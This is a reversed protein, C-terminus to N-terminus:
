PRNSSAESTRCILKRVDDITTPAGLFEVPNAVVSSHIAPGLTNVLTDAVYCVPHSVTGLNTMHFAVPRATCRAKAAGAFGVYTEDILRERKSAAALRPPFTIQMVPGDLGTDFMAWGYFPIPAGTVRVIATVVGAWSSFTLGSRCGRRDALVTHDRGLHLALHPFMGLGEVADYGEPLEEVIRALQGSRTVGLQRFAGFRM